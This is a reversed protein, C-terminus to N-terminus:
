ADDYPSPVAFRIMNDGDGLYVKYRSNEPRDGIFRVTVM